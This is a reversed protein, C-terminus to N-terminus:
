RRHSGDPAHHHLIGHTSGEVSSRRLSAIAPLRPPDLPPRGNLHLVKAAEKSRQERNSSARILGGGPPVERLEAQVALCGGALSDLVARHPSAFVPIVSITRGDPQDPTASLLTAFRGGDVLLSVLLQPDGAFHMVADLGGPAVARVQPDLDQGPDVVHIAGLARVHEAETPNAATAVVTAGRAAVLQIAVSGVGGTAGSILVTEGPTPAIANVSDV